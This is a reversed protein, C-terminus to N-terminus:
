SSSGHACQPRLIRGSASTLCLLTHVAAFGMFGMRVAAGATLLGVPLPPLPDGVGCGGVAGRGAAAGLLGIPPELAPPAGGVGM